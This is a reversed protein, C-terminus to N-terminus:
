QLREESNEPAFESWPHTSALEPSISCIFQYARYQLRRDLSQSAISAVQNISDSCRRGTLALVYILLSVSAGTAVSLFENIKTISRDSEFIMEETALGDRRQLEIAQLIRGSSVFEGFCFRESTPSLKGAIMSLLQPLLCYADAGENGSFTAAADSVRQEAGKLEELIKALRETKM